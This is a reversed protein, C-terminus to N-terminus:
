NSKTYILLSNYRDVQKLKGMDEISKVISHTNKWAHSGTYFIIKGDPNLKDLFLELLSRDNQHIFAANESLYYECLHFLNVIDLMPLNNATLTYIDAFIVKYYNAFTRDKLVLRVYAKHEPASATIGLIHNPRELKHNELSIIHHAGTGFHFINKEEIKQQKLYEIFDLDCNCDNARLTWLSHQQYLTMKGHPVEPRAIKTVYLTKNLFYKTKKFM